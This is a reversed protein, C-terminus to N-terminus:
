AAKRGRQDATRAASARSDAQKTQAKRGELSRGNLRRMVKWTRLVGLFDDIGLDKPCKEVEVEGEGTKPIRVIFGAVSPM